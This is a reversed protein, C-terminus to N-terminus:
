IGSLVNGYRLCCYIIKERRLRASSLLILVLPAFLQPLPLRRSKLAWCRSWNISPSRFERVLPLCRLSILHIKHILLLATRAKLYTAFGDPNVQFLLVVKPFSSLKYALAHFRGKPNEMDELSADGPGSPLDVRVSLRSYFKNVPVSIKQGRVEMPKTALFNVVKMQDYIVRDKAKPVKIKQKVLNREERDFERMVMEKATILDVFYVQDKRVFCHYVNAGEPIDRSNPIRVIKADPTKAAPTAELLARLRDRESILTSLETEQKSLDGSKAAMEKSLVPLDFLKINKEKV